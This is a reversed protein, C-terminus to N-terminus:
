DRELRKQLETDNMKLCKSMSSTCGVLARGGSERTGAKWRWFDGSDYGRGLWIRKPVYVNIGLMTLRDQLQQAITLRMVEGARYYALLKRTGARISM